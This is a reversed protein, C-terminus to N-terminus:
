EPTETAIMHGIVPAPETVALGQQRQRAVAFSPDISTPTPCSRNARYHLAAAVRAEAAAGFQHDFDDAVACGPVSIGEITTLNAPSFGDPYDGFDKANVGRLQVTSYTSGCNDTSYFGYPKGCTTEGVLVVEVDIGRLANVVLESASCTRPGSLVFVRKLDLKPLAIGSRPTSWGITTTRFLDPTLRTNTVPNFVRHKDNFQTESFVKGRANDGAIMYALQNAIIIFGGGNYRLDLILDTVDAAEFRTFADVLQQEAAQVIFTNFLVYGVPGSATQIVQDHQVPVTTIDASTMTVTRVETSGPDRVRFEHIEDLDDPWLAGNIVDVDAQTPGNVIDVGDVELMATGRKLDVGTQTAPSNPETYRVRIDRPPRAQLVVFSAGYGAGVSGTSIRARYEATNQFFHFQDKRKGSPTTEFTKLLGFYEPTDCCLPDVDEIEDYWLYTDNSWSRLWNNEDLTTGRKDPFPMGEADVGTRPNACYDKFRTNYDALYFEDPDWGTAIDAMAWERRATVNATGRGSAIFERGDMPFLYWHGTSVKRLLVDDNGDGNLDGTGAFAFDLNRTVNAAGDDDAVHM